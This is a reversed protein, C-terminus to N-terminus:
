RLCIPSTNTLALDMFGFVRDIDGFEKDRLGHTEAIETWAKQVAPRKEWNSLIFRFRIAGPPGYGRPPRNPLTITEYTAQDSTDPGSWPIQFRYALKPCIQELYLPM